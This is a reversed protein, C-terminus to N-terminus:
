YAKDHRMHTGYITGQSIQTGCTTNQNVRLFGVWVNDQINIRTLVQGVM